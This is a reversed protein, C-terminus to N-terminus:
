RRRSLQLVFEGDFLGEELGRLPAVGGLTLLTKEGLQFRLGMTANLVDLRNFPNSITDTFGSNVPGFAANGALVADTDNLTTTYHMEFIGAIGRLKASCCSNRYFWKGVSMDIFWLNQDNYIQTVDTQGATSSTVANGAAAFDMQSYFTAWCGRNPTCQVAFFPQLHYATNEFEVRTSGTTLESAAATPFIVGLGTSVAHRCDQYLLAKGTLSLNGFENAQFLTGGDQFQQSDVGNAIPIRATVSMLGNAFTKEAGFLYRNVDLQNGNVDSVADAFANYTFFVRDMPVPSNNESLKYRRDGGATPLIIQQGGWSPGTIFSSSGFFDGITSVDSFSAERGVSMGATQSFSDNAQLMDPALGATSGAAEAGTGPVPQVVSPNNNSELGPQAAPQDGINGM